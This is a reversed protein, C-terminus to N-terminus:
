KYKNGLRAFVVSQDSQVAIFCDVKGFYKNKLILGDHKMSMIISKTYRKQNKPASFNVWSFESFNKKPYKKIIKNKCINFEDKYVDYARYNSQKDQQIKRESTTQPNSLILILFGFVLVLGMAVIIATMNGSKKKTKKEKKKTLTKTLEIGKGGGRKKAVFFTILFIILFTIFKAGEDGGDKATYIGAILAAIIVYPILYKKTNSINILLRSSFYTGVMVNLFMWIISLGEGISNNGPLKINATGRWGKPHLDASLHIAISIYFGIVFFILYDNPKDKKKIFFHYLLYPFLISHTIISRHGLLGPFAHDIDPINLTLFGLFYVGLFIFYNTKNDKVM